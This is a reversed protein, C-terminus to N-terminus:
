TVIYGRLNLVGLLGVDFGVHALPVLLNCPLLERFRAGQTLVRRSRIRRSAGLVLFGAAPALAGPLPAPM